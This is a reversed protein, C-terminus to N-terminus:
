EFGKCNNSFGRFNGRCPRRFQNIIRERAARIEPDNMWFSPEKYYNVTERPPARPRGGRAVQVGAFSRMQRRIMLSSATRQIRLLGEDVRAPEQKRRYFMRPELLLQRGEPIAELEVPKAGESKDRQRKKQAERRALAAKFAPSLAPPRKKLHPEIFKQSLGM